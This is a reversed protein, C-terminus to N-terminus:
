RNRRRKAKNSYVDSGNNGNANFYISKEYKVGVEM